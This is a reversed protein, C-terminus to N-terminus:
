NTYEDIIKCGQMFRMSQSQPQLPSLPYFMIGECEDCTTKHCESQEELETGCQTCRKSAYLEFPNMPEVALTLV